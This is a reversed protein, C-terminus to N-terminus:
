EHGSEGPLLQHSWTVYRRQWKLWLTQRQHSNSETSQRLYLNFELYASIRHPRGWQRSRKGRQPETKGSLSSFKFSQLQM